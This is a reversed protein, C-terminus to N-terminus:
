TVFNRITVNPNPVSRCFVTGSRHVFGLRERRAHVHSYTSGDHLPSDTPTAFRGRSRDGRFEVRPTGVEQQEQAEWRSGGGGAEAKEAEWDEEEAEANLAAQYARATAADDHGSPDQSPTLALAAQM